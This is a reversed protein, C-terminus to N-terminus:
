SENFDSIKVQLQKVPAVLRQYLLEGQETLEFVRNNRRVLDVGLEQELSQIKRSLTAQSTNLLTAAKTYNGIEVLKIFLAVTDYM